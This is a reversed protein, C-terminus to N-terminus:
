TKEPFQVSFTTGDGGTKCSILGGLRDVLNKTISLGLGSHGNGKTSTVPKYLNNMIEVPIGSASDQLKLEIHNMGNININGSTITIEGNEVIAEVSNKILNSIIQKIADKDSKIQKIYGLSFM